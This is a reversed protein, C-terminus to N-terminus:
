RVALHLNDTLFRNPKTGPHHVVRAFVSKGQKNTWRLVKANKPRIVHPRTGEHHWEAYRRTSGVRIALDGGVGNTWNKTIDRKLMGTRVGVQAKAALQVLTARRSLDKGVIGNKSQFTSNFGPQVPVNVSVDGAM